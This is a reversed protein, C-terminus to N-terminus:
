AEGNEAWHVRCVSSEFLEDVPKCSLTLFGYRVTENLETQLKLKANEDAKLFRSWLVAYLLQAVLTAQTVDCSAQGHLGHAKLTKLAYLSAPAKGTVNLTHPLPCLVQVLLLLM